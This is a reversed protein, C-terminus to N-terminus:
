QWEKYIEMARKRQNKPINSMGTALRSSIANRINIIRHWNGSKVAKKNWDNIESLIKKMEDKDNRRLANVYRDAYRSKKEDIAGVRSEAEYAAYGKSVSTPQFGLAKLTAQSKTIKRPGVEGPYNIDRGSRTRQGTSALEVARMANRMSIPTIPSESVARYKQGSKWSKIMKNTDDYVAYPIGLLENWGRPFEISLSGTLDVGGAGPLGYVIMDKMWEEPVLKRIETMADKDDEGAASLAAQMLDKAFPVSALGGMLFVNRISRAAAIKGEKGQNLILHHMALLYNHTFSRFTYASRAVKRFDGGRVSSPLNSRGYLFHSDLIVEKAFEIAEDHTKGNELGVRYAALGTSTRNFREALQMFKGSWDVAKKYIKGWGAKPINGMLERLFIDATAGAEVLEKIAAQEDKNLHPYKIEKNQWASRSTLAGRVDKMAKALKKDASKTYKGLVPAAMVVNQTLNVVASKPVFGLYKVFFLGRLTDVARDTKDQNKLMDQIYNSVYKYENPNEKADINRLTKHHEKARDIKTKFGSYGALYDFLIDFAGETEHGPINQRNIAHSAWGRGKFVDAIAKDLAAKIEVGSAKEVRGAAVDALQQMADVPISFFVEDPLQTVKKINSIKYRSANGELDGNRIQKALWKATRAKVQSPKNKLKNYSNFHERYVTKGTERDTVRIFANGQRRHPFYNTTAMISQRFEEIETPDERDVAMLKTADVFVKDLTKRIEMFADVVDPAINQTNLYNKVQAYHLPRIKIAGGDDLYFPNRHTVSKKPFREGDWKFLLDDLEKSKKKSKSINRQVEDLKGEYYGTLEKSRREGANIETEVASKMSLYKKGLYYPNMFARQYWKMDKDVYGKGLWESASKWLSKAEGTPDPNAIAYQIREEITIANEDFVVYNTGKGGGSLTGAPYRIGDIGARLLFMSAEKDSGLVNSLGHYLISGEWDNSVGQKGFPYRGLANFQEKTLTKKLKAVTSQGIRKGWDLWTYESPDKGKHLTAKYLNRKVPESWHEVPLNINYLEKIANQEHQIAQRAGDEKLKKLSEIRKNSIDIIEQKSLGNALQNYIHPYDTEDERLIKDGIKWGYIEPNRNPSNALEAYHKAIDKKDTFYLGYGFAQAGEGTGVRDMSFRDVKHPSGHWVDVQGRESRLDVGPRKKYIKGSEMDRTIGRKTRHVINVLGDVFDAIKQIVRQLPKARQADRNRLESEVYRARNEETAEKGSKRVYHNLIRKDQGNILGSKELHHYSEHHLTFKDGYPSIKIVGDQYSGAIKEGPKQPRKYSAKFAYDNGAIEPVQQVTLDKGVTFSGDDNPTVKQGKFVSKIDSETLPKNGETTSFKLPPEKMAEEVTMEGSAVMAQLDEPLDEFGPPMEEDYEMESKLRKEQPTLNKTRESIDVSPHRRRLTIPYKLIDILSEDKGIWGESRLTEEATDIPEGGKRLVSRRVNTPIDKTEGKFHLTDIGGNKMQRLRWRLTEGKTQTTKQREKETRKRYEEILAHALDKRGGHKFSAAEALLQPKSLQSAPRGIRQEIEALAGGDGAGRGEEESDIGEHTRKLWAKHEKQRKEVSANGDQFRKTTVLRDLLGPKLDKFGSDLADKTAEAETKHQTDGSFGDQDYYTTQWWGNKKASPTVIAGRISNPEQRIFEVPKRGNEARHVEIALKARVNGDNPVLEWNAIQKATLPEKTYLFNGMPKMGDERIFDVPRNPSYYTYKHDEPPENTVYQKEHNNRFIDPSSLAKRIRDKEWSAFKPKQADPEKQKEKASVPSETETFSTKRGEFDKAINYARIQEKIGEKAKGSQIDRIAKLFTEASKAAPGYPYEGKLGELQQNREAESLPLEPEPKETTINPPKTEKTIPISEYDARQKDIDNTKEVEPQKGPEIEDDTAVESGRSAGVGGVFAGFPAAVAGQYAGEKFAEWARDVFMDVRKNNDEGPTKAWIEAAEQPFQQLTETLWEVFGSEGASKLIKTAAKGPKWFSLAKSMGIQELPAQMAADALSAKFAREPEVGEKTLREYDSGAIQSAMFAGGAAPGGAATAAIQAGIQPAMRVVDQLYGKVGEPRKLQGPPIRNIGAQIDRTQAQQGQKLGAQMRAAREWNGADPDMSNVIDQRQQPTLMSQLNPQGFRQAEQPINRAQESGKLFQLTSRGVDKAGEKLAGMPQIGVEPEPPTTDKIFGAYVQNRQQDTLEQYQPTSAINEQFWGLRVQSQQAPTLQLYEETESIDSWNNL